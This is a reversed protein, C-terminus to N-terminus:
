FQVCEKFLLWSYLFAYPMKKYSGYSRPHSICLIGCIQVLLGIEVCSVTCAKFQSQNYDLQDCKWGRSRPSHCWSWFWFNYYCCALWTCERVGRTEYHKKAATGLGSFRAKFLGANWISPNAGAERATSPSRWGFKKALGCLQECVFSPSSWVKFLQSATSICLLYATSLTMTTLLPSTAPLNLWDPRLRIQWSQQYLKSM